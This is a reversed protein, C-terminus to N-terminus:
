IKGGSRKGFLLTTSLKLIFNNNWENYEKGSIFTFM